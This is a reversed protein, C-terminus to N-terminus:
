QAAAERAADDLGIAIFRRAARDAERLTQYPGAVARHRIPMRQGAAVQWSLGSGPGDWMIRSGKAAGPVPGWLTIGFALPERRVSAAPAAQRARAAALARKFQPSLDAAFEVARIEMDSLSWGSWDTGNSPYPNPAM